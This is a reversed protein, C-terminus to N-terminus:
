DQFMRTALDLVDCLQLLVPICVRCKLSSPQKMFIWLHFSLSLRQVFSVNCECDLVTSSTRACNSVTQHYFLPFGYQAILRELRRDESHLARFHM